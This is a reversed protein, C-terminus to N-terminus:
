SHHMLHFFANVKADVGGVTTAFVTISFHSPSPSSFTNHFRSPTPSHQRIELRPFTLGSSCSIPCFFFFDRSIKWLPAIFKHPLGRPASRRREGSAGSDAWKCQAAAANQGTGGGGM